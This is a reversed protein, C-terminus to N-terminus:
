NIVFITLVYNGELQWYGRGAHLARNQQHTGLYEITFTQAPWNLKVAAEHFGIFQGGTPFIAKYGSEKASFAIAAAISPLDALVVRESETFLAAFLREKVRDTREIDIGIGKQATSLTAVAAIDCHSISGTYATSPWIPSREQRLIPEPALGLLEQCRHACYRGSSFEHQRKEAMSELADGEDGLLQERYDRIPALVLAAGCLDPLANTLPILNPHECDRRM